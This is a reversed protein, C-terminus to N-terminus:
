PTVGLRGRWEAPIRHPRGERDTCLHKTHGTALIQGTEADVVEYEFTLSRSKLESVWTRVTVLRDYHAPAVFRACCEVVPLFFGDREFDQYSAGRARMYDSRGEEFWVFYATHHAVGMQDTEAYRVHFTTEHVYSSKSPKM